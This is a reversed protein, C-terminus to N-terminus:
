RYKWINMFIDLSLFYSLGKFYINKGAIFLWIIISSFNLFKTCKQIWILYSFYCAVFLPWQFKHNGFVKMFNMCAVLKLIDVKQHGNLSFNWLLVHYWLLSLSLDYWEPPEKKHNVNVVFGLAKPFQWLVMALQSFLFLRFWRM